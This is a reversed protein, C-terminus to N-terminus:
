FLKWIGFVKFYFNALFIGIGLTTIIKGHLQDNRSYKHVTKGEPLQHKKTFLYIGICTGILTLLLASIYGILVLGAANKTPTNYKLPNKQELEKKLEDFNSVGRENLLKNAIQVDLESWEAHHYVVEYLEADSFGYLYHDQDVQEAEKSFLQSLIDKAKTHKGQKVFLEAEYNSTTGFVANFSPQNEKVLVEIGNEQLISKVEEAQEAQHFIQFSQYEAKM